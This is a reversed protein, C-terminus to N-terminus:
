LAQEYTTIRRGCHRCERRRMVKKGAAARTYVVFFHHCGCNPCTLGREKLASAEKVSPISAPTQKTM